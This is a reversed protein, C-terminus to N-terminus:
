DTYFGVGDYFSGDLTGSVTNSIIYPADDCTFFHAVPDADIGRRYVDAGAACPIGHVIRDIYCDVGVNFVARKIFQSAARKIVARSTGSPLDTVFM